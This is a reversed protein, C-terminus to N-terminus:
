NSIEFTLPIIGIHPRDKRQIFEGELLNVVRIAEAKLDKHTNNNAAFVDIFHGERSAIFLVYANGSINNEVCNMPYNLNEELVHHFELKSKKYYFYNTTDRQDIDNKLNDSKEPMINRYGPHFQFKDVIRNLTPNLTDYLIVSDIIQIDLTDKFLYESSISKDSRYITYRKLKNAIFTGYRYYNNVTSILFKGNKIGGITNGISTTDGTQDFSVEQGELKNKYYQKISQRIGNEYYSIVQGHKLGNNYPTRSKIVGNSYYEVMTDTLLYNDLPMSKINFDRSYVARKVLTKQEDYFQVIYSNSTKYLNVTCPGTKSIKTFNKDTQYTKQAFSNTVFLMLNISFIIRFNKMTITKLLISLTSYPLRIM